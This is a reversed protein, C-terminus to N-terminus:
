SNHVVFPRNLDVWRRLDDVGGVDFPNNLLVLSPGKNIFIHHKRRGHGVVVGFKLAKGKHTLLDSVYISLVIHELLELVKKAEVQAKIHQRRCLV